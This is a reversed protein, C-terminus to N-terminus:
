KYISIIYLTSLNLLSIWCNLDELFIFIYNHIINYAEYDTTNCITYYIYTSLYNNPLFITLTHDESTIKLLKINVM